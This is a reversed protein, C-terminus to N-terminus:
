FEEISELYHHAIISPLNNTTGVELWIVKKSYGDCCGHLAFGFKKLKDNGDIHWIRNPGPVHYRRRQLRRRLRKEVGQPNIVRLVRLVTTQKVSLNYKGEIEAM